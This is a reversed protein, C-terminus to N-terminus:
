KHFGDQDLSFKESIEISKPDKIEIKNKLDVFHFVPIELNIGQFFIRGKEWTIKWKKKGARALARDSFILDQFSVSLAGKNALGIVVDTMDYAPHLSNVHKKLFWQYGYRIENRSKRFGRFSLLEGILYRIRIGPKSYKSLDSMRMTNNEDIAYHSSDKLIKEYEYVNEYLRRTKETNQYLCLPGSLFGKYFSIVERGEELLPHLYHGLNGFVMDMDCYGWYDYEALHEKFIAGYAPKFDCLKRPNEINVHFGLNESALVNLEALSYHKFQVNESTYPVEPHDSVILWNFRLNYSTSKLFYPLFTPWDGLWICIILTKISTANPTSM